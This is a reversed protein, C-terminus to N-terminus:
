RAGGIADLHRVIRNGAGTPELPPVTPPTRTVVTRGPHTGIANPM